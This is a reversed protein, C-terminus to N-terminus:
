GVTFLLLDLLTEARPGKPNVPLSEVERQRDPTLPVLRLGEQRQHICFLVTRFFGGASTLVPQLMTEITARFCHSLAPPSASCSKLAKWWLLDNLVFSCSSKQIVVIMIGLLVLEGDLPTSQAAPMPQVRKTKLYVALHGSAVGGFFTWVIYYSVEGVPFDMWWEMTLHCWPHVNKHRLLFCKPVAGPGPLSPCLPVRCLFYETLTQRVGNFNPVTRRSTIGHTRRLAAAGAVLPPVSLMLFCFHLTVRSWCQLIISYTYVTYMYISYIRLIIYYCISRVLRHRFNGVM